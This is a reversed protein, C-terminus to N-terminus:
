LHRLSQLESTHEESRVLRRPAGATVLLIQDSRLPAPGPGGVAADEVVAGRGVGAAPGPRLALAVDHPVLLLPLPGPGVHRVERSRFLTTYPFLTSAPP